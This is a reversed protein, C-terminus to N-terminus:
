KEDNYYSSKNGNFDEVFNEMIYELVRKRCVKIIGMAGRGLRKWRERNKYNRNKFWM